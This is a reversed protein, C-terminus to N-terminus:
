RRTARMKVVRRDTQGSVIEDILTALMRLAQAKEERYEHRNYVGAVGKITHGLTQEAHDPRVGARAMLSSATRRLDHLTWPPMDGLGADFAKKAKSFGNVHSGARSAFVFPNNGMRPQANLIDIAAQPLVLTGANNKERPDTPITWVGDEDIDQWRMAAIKERRQGTLLLLRLITGYQGNEEALKWVRRLEDDDLISSRAEGRFAKAMGSVIPSSYNEDRLAYWKTLAHCTQILYEAARRGHKEAVKDALTIIDKRRVDTFDRNGFAANLRDLHRNIEHASRLGKAEVHKTRWLQAITAFSEPANEGRLTACAKERAQAITYRRTDGIKTWKNNHVTVFTKTGTPFVRIYHGPLEPDPFAYRTSRPKLAAVGEDTLRKRRAM